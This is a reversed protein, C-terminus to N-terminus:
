EVPVTPFSAEADPEPLCPLNELKRREREGSGVGGGYRGGIGVKGRKGLDVYGMKWTKILRKEAFNEGLCRLEIM